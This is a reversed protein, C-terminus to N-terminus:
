LWAIRRKAGCSENRFVIHFAGQFFGVQEVFASYSELSEFARGGRLLLHQHLARKLGGHNSKVDGDEQPSQRHTVRPGLGDHQLLQLYGDTYPREREAEVQEAAQPRRTAASSNTPRIANRCM